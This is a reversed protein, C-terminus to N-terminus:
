SRKSSFVDKFVQYNRNRYKGRLHSLDPVTFIIEKFLGNYSAIAERFLNAVVQPNNGYANCGMATLVLNHIGRNLSTELILKIKERYTEIYEATPPDQPNKPACCLIANTLIHDTTEELLYLETNRLVVLNEIIIIQNDKLPYEVKDYCMPLNTRRCISEEQGLAGEMYGGGPRTANGCILLVCDGQFRDVVIQLIDEDLVEINTSYIQMRQRVRVRPKNQRIKQFYTTKNFYEYNERIYLLIKEQLEVREKYNLNYELSM